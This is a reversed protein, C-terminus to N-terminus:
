DRAPGTVAFRLSERATSTSPTEDITAEFLYRGDDVRDKPLVEFVNQCLVKGEQALALPISPLKFPDDGEEPTVIREINAPPAAKRAVLCAKNRSLVEDVNELRQVIMPEFSGRTAVIDHHALEEFDIRERDKSPGDGRVVINEDRPRGLIPKVLILERATHVLGAIRFPKAEHGPRPMISSSIPM